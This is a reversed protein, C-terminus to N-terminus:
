DPLAEHAAFSSLLGSALGGWCKSPEISSILKMRLKVPSALLSGLFMLEIRLAVWACARSGQHFM